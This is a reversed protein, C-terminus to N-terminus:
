GGESNDTCLRNRVARVGRVESVTTEAAKRSQEDSVDGELTVEGGHVEVIIPAIATEPLTNLRLEIDECIERDPRKQSARTM